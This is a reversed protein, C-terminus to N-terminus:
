VAAQELAGPFVRSNNAFSGLLAQSAHYVPKGRSISHVYIFRHLEGFSWTLLLNVFATTMKVSM